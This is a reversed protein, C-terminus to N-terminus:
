EVILHSCQSDIYKVHQISPILCNMKKSCVKETRCSFFSAIFM